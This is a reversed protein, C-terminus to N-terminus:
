WFRAVCLWYVNLWWRKVKIVHNRCTIFIQNWRVLFYPLTPIVLHIILDLKGFQSKQSSQNVVARTLYGSAKAVLISASFLCLYTLNSCSSVPSQCIRFAEDQLKFGLIAETFWCAEIMEIRGDWLWSQINSVCKSNRRLNLFFDPPLVHLALHFIPIILSFYFLFILALLQKIATNKFKLHKWYLYHSAPIAYDKMFVFQSRM